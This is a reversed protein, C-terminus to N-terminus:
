QMEKLATALQQATQFGILRRQLRGDPGYLLLAPPGFLQQSQQWRRQDDSNDTVDFKLLVRQQLLAHVTPDPFTERELQHCAVCWDAYVDVLVPRGRAAVLAQELAASDKVVTFASASAPRADSRSIVGRLPQLVDRNGSLVGVLLAIGTVVALLGLAKALRRLASANVPLPELAHLFVGCGVLLASWALMLAASSFLPQAIWLALALLVVGYIRRVTNMWPGAHPLLSGGFVGVAILPLGMGVGLAYLALGGTLADGTQGIYLLAAALPPAMCPGIIISSLVGMGFVTLLRGGPLRNASNALRTQVSAPLQLQYLGFMALALLVFIAALSGLVLPHQLTQALLTGSLGAAIGALAYTVAVGQSYALSLWFARARGSNSSIIIGSIIPILPYLCATLSLGLGLVAFTLAILWWRGDALLRALAPDDAASSNQTLTEPSKKKGLVDDLLGSGAPAAPADGLSVRHTYPVYCLGADSCGQSRAVLTTKSIDLPANVPLRIRLQDHFTEVRGMAKDDKMVGAPFEATGLSGAPELRFDFRHRYMYYGPAITYVLTIAQGDYLPPALRFAQEPPLPEADAAHATWACLSLLLALLYSFIAPM